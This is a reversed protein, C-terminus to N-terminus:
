FHERFVKIIFPYFPSEFQVTWIGNHGLVTEYPIVSELEVGKTTQETAWPEPYEPKFQSQKLILQDLDISDITFGKIEILQTPDASTAQKREIILQHSGPQLSCDFVVVNPGQVLNPSAILQEDIKITVAPAVTNWSALIDLRFTCTEAKSVPDILVRQPAVKQQLLGLLAPLDAVRGVRMVAFQYEHCWDNLNWHQCWREQYNQWWGLFEDYRPVSDLEIDELAISLHPRFELWPKCLECIREIDDPEGDSWYTYPTKGLEQWRVFVDGATIKYTCQKFWDCDFPVQLIGALDRYDLRLNKFNAKECRHLFDHFMLWQRDGDYSREYISHLENFYTQDKSSCRETDVSIGLNKGFRVLDDLDSRGDRFYVDCDHDM